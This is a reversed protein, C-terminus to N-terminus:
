AFYCFFMGTVNLDAGIEILMKAAETHGNKSALHLPTEM